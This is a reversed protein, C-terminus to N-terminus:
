KCDIYVIGHGDRATCNVPWNNAPQQYHNNNVPAPTSQIVEVRQTPVYETRKRAQDLKYQENEAWVGVAAGAIEPAAQITGKIVPVVVHNVVPQLVAKDVKGIGYDYYRETYAELSEGPRQIACGSTLLM